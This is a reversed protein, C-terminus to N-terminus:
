TVDKEEQNLERYFKRQFMRNQKFRDVREQYMSVKAAIAIIRRKLGEIVVAM